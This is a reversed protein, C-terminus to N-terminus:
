LTEAPSSPGFVLLKRGETLEIVALLSASGRIPDRRSSGTHGSSHRQRSLRRAGRRRGALHEALLGARIKPREESATARRRRRPSPRRRRRRLYEGLFVGRHHRRPSRLSSRRRLLPRRGSRRRPRRHRRWDHGLKSAGFRRAGYATGLFDAVFAILAFLGLLVVIFVSVVEFNTVYTYVLAAAFILPVGPLGPLVTGLLGLLM